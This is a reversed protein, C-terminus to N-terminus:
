STWRLSSSPSAPWPPRASWFRARYNVDFSVLCGQRKAASVAGVTSDRALDSLAPTIGSVHFARVGRLIADWDADEPTFRAIAADKRDYLVQSARPSAGPEVFYLGVRHDGTWVVHPAEVGQARAQNVILRGLGNYTLQSVWASRM